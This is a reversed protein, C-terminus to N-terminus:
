FIKKNYEIPVDQIKRCHKCQWMADADSTCFQSLKCAYACIHTVGIQVAVPFTITGNVIVSGNRLQIDVGGWSSQSVNLLEPRLIEAMSLQPFLLTNWECQLLNTLFFTM